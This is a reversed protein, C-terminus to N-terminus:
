LGLDDDLDSDDSKVEAEAKENAEDVIANDEDSDDDEIETNAFRSVFPKDEGEGDAGGEGSEVNAAPATEYARM